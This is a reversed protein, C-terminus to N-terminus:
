LLMSRNVEWFTVLNDFRGMTSAIKQTGVPEIRLSHGHCHWNETHGCTHVCRLRSWRDAFMLKANVSSSFSLLSGAFLSDGHLSLTAAQSPPPSTMLQTAGHLIHSRHHHSSRHTWHWVALHPETYDQVCIIVPNCVCVHMCACLCVCLNVSVVIEVAIFQLSGTQLYVSACSTLSLASSVNSHYGTNWETITIQVKSPLM